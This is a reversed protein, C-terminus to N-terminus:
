GRLEDHVQWKFTETTDRFATGSFTIEGIYDALSAATGFAGSAPTYEVLTNKNNDTASVTCGAGNVLMTGGVSQVYMRAGYGSYDVGKIIFQYTAGFDGRKIGIEEM